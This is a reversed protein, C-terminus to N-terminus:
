EFNHLCVKVLQVYALQQEANSYSSLQTLM